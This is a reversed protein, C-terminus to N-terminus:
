YKVPLCLTNLTVTAAFNKVRALILYMKNYSISEKIYTFFIVQKQRTNFSACLLFDTEKEAERHIHMQHFHV